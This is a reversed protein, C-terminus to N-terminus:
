AATATLTSSDFKLSGVATSPKSTVVYTAAKSTDDAEYGAILMAIKESNLPSAAVKILAQGAGVGTKATFEEGCMPVSSGLMQAALTNVCSGGVVVLNKSAVSSAESDKVVLVGAAGGTTVGPAAVFFDVYSEEDETNHYEVKLTQQDPGKDLVVKTTAPSKVYGEYLDTEEGTEYLSSVWNATVDKVSTEQDNNFGVTVNIWEGNNVSGASDQERMYLKWSSPQETLNIDGENTPTIKDVPLYITLGGLSHVKDFSSGSGSTLSLNVIGDSSREWVVDEIKIKLKDGLDKTEGKEKEVFLDSDTNVIKISTKNEDTVKTVELLYSEWNTGSGYSAVAWIEGATTNLKINTGEATKLKKSSKQGITKFGGSENSELLYIEQGSEKGKLPVKLVIRQTGD